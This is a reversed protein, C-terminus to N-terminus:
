FIRELVYITDGPQVPYDTPVMVTSMVGGFRRTLRVFRQKARETYGEAIAVAAEVSMANVYAYQGPKNVEGLIFFPRYTEVEVTVKPDKIYKQKLDAAIESALEFTTLGRASVAGILPMAVRGSGDVSYVRSLNDQGFVIIRVKDGSDLTYTENPIVPVGPPSSGAGAPFAEGPAPLPAPTSLAFDPTTLGPISRMKCGGLCAASVALLLFAM